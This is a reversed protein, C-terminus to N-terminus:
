SLLAAAARNEIEEEIAIGLLRDNKLLAARIALIKDVSKLSEITHTGMMFGEVGLGVLVSSEQSTSLMERSVIARKLSPFRAVFERAFKYIAARSPFPVGPARGNINNSLPTERSSHGSWGALDLAGFSLYIHEIKDFGLKESIGHARDPKMHTWEDGDIDPNESLFGWLQGEITLAHKQSLTLATQILPKLVGRDWDQLRSFHSQMKALFQDFSSQSRAFARSATTGILFAKVVLNDLLPQRNLSINEVAPWHKNVGVLWDWICDEYQPAELLTEPEGPICSQCLRRLYSTGATSHGYDQGAFSAGGYSLTLTKVRKFQTLKLFDLRSDPSELIISLTIIDSWWKPPVEVFREDANNCLWVRVPPVGDVNLNTRTTQMGIADGLNEELEFKTRKFLDLRFRQLDPVLNIEADSMKLFTEIAKKSPCPPDYFDSVEKICRLADLNFQERQGHGPLSQTMGGIGNLPMLKPLSHGSM